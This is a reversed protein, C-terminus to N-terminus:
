NEGRICISSIKNKIAVAVVKDAGKEIEEIPVREDSITIIQLGLKDSISKMMQIAKRNHRIGKLNQFPEDLILVNRSKPKQLSWMAVRLAFCAVNVTGMGSAQLPTMREGGKVFYLDAETKNRRLVFEIAFEYPDDKIPDDWVAALALSAIESVHFELQEQTLKATTQVVLQAEAIDESEQKLRKITKETKEISAILQDHKGWQRELIRRYDKIRM